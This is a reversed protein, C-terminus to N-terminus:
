IAAVDDGGGRELKAIFEEKRAALELFLEDPFQEPSLQAEQRLRAFFEGDNGVERLAKFNRFDETFPIKLNLHRYLEQEDHASIVVKRACFKDHEIKHIVPLPLEEEGTYILLFYMDWRITNDAYKRDQLYLAIDLDQAEMWKERLDTLDNFIKVAFLYCREEPDIYYCKVLELEPDQVKKLGMKSFFNDLSNYVSMEDM